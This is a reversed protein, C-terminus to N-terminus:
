RRRFIDCNSYKMLAVFVAVYYISIIQYIFGDAMYSTLSYFIESYSKSSLFLSKNKPSSNYLTYYYATVFNEDRRRLM